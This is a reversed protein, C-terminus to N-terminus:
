PAHAAPSEAPPRSAATARGLTFYFTSGAGTASEAWIRGSHRDVIRKATALGIGSGPYDQVGHLRQFPQFLKGAYTQDFGVGNDRVFFVRPGRPRKIVGFEIRAIEKRATFKWANGILHQVLVRLLTPDGVAWMDDAVVFQAKRQPDIQQLERIVERAIVDLHLRRSHLEFRSIHSLTLLDDILDGMRQTAACIRRLHDRGAEDLREAYDELLVHSFGNIGRLPTRLDHSVSYSFSELERLSAELAGTRQRVRNELVANLHRIEEEAHRRETIDESLGAFLYPRGGDDRLALVHNRLWRVAGDPRVIRFDIQYVGKLKRLDPMAKVRELDAAHVAQQWDSPDAGLTERPRGLITEYSSNVFIVQRREPVAMWIIFPLHEAFQRFLNERERLAQEARKRETIDRLIAVVEEPGSRILRAEIRRGAEEAQSAFEFTQMAGTDLTRGIAARLQRLVPEPLQLSALNAASDIAPFGPPADRPCSVDLLTGDQALRVVIDPIANLLARQRRAAARLADNAAELEATRALVRDELELSLQRARTEARKRETIETAVGLVLPEGSTGTLRTKVTQYWRTAGDPGTLPEELTVTTGSDLVERDAAAFREVEEAVNHLEADTHDAMQEPLRGFAAATATNALLYRGAPDKVFIPNPSTDLVAELFQQTRRLEQEISRRETVDQAVGVICGIGGDADRVPFARDHIWRVARDTRVIRYFEDYEGKTQRTQMARVVRERDDPHIAQMWEGPSAYLSACSRGWIREYAPSVYIMRHKDPPTMWVVQDLNDLIMRAFRQEDPNGELDRLRRRLQEVERILDERSPKRSAM